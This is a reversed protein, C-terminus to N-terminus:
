FHPFKSHKNAIDKFNLFTHSISPTLSVVFHFWSVPIFLVDGAEVVVEIPTAKSMEPYTALDYDELDKINSFVFDLNYTYPIQYPPILWIKKKGYIQAFLNNISDYHMPTRTGAPGM